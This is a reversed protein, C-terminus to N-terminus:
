AVEGFTITASELLDLITRMDTDTITSDFNGRIDDAIGEYVFYGHEFAWERALKELSVTGAEPEVRVGALVEYGEPLDAPALESSMAWIEGDVATTIMEEADIKFLRVLAGINDANEEVTRAYAAEAVSKDFHWYVGGHSEPVEWAIAYLVNTDIEHLGEVLLVAQDLAEEWGECQEEVQKLFGLIATKDDAHM